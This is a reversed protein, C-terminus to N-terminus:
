FSYNRGQVFTTEYVSFCVVCTWRRKCHALQFEDASKDGRKEKQASYGAVLSLTHGNCCARTAMDKLEDPSGPMQGNALIAACAGLSPSTLREIYCRESLEIEPIPETTTVVCMGKKGAAFEMIFARFLPDVLVPPQERSQLTDLGDLVLLHHSRQLVSIVYRVRDIGSFISSTSKKLHLWEICRDLFEDVDRHVGFPSRSFTWGLVGTAGGYGEQEKRDLWQHILASKGFGAPSVVSFVRYRHSRWAEDLRDLQRPRLFASRNM